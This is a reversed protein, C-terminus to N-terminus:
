KIPVSRKIFVGEKEVFSDDARGDLNVVFKHGPIDVTDKKGLSDNIIFSGIVTETDLVRYIGHKVPEHKVHQRCAPLLWLAIFVKKM